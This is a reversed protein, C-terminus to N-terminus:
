AIVNINLKKENSLGAKGFTLKIKLSEMANRPM